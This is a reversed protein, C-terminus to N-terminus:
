EKKNPIPDVPLIDNQPNKKMKTVLEHYRGHTNELLEEHKGQQVVQGNELVIIRDSDQITSLRHAIVILTRKSTNIIQLSEQIAHETETDL